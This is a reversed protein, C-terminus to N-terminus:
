PLTKVSDSPIVGQKQLMNVLNNHVRIINNQVQVTRLQLDVIQRQQVVLSDVLANKDTKPTVQCAILVPLFLLMYRM